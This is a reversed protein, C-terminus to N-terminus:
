GIAVYYYTSGSSNLQQSASNYGYWSIAKGWTTPLESAGMYNGLGNAVGNVNTIRGGFVATSTVNYQAM